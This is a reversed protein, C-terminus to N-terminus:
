GTKNVNIGSELSGAVAAENGDVIALHFNQLARQEDSLPDAPMSPIEM